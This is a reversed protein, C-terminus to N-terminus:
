SVLCKKSVYAIFKMSCHINTYRYSYVYSSTVASSFFSNLFFILSNSIFFKLVNPRRNLHIPENNWYIKILSVNNNNQRKTANKKHEKTKPLIPLTKNHKIEWIPRKDKLFQSYTKSPRSLPIKLIIKIHFVIQICKPIWFM